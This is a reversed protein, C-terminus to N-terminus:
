DCINKLNNKLESQEQAKYRGQMMRQRTSPFLNQSIQAPYRYGMREIEYNGICIAEDELSKLSHNIELYSFIISIILLWL